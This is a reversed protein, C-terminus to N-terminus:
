GVDYWALNGVELGQNMLMLALCPVVDIFLVLLHCSKNLSQDVDCKKHQNNNNYKKFDKKLYDTQKNTELSHKM